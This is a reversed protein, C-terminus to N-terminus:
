IKGKSKLDEALRRQYMTHAERDERARQSYYIFGLARRSRTCSRNADARHITLADHVLLDGPKAPCTV